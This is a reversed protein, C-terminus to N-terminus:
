KGNTDNSANAPQLNANNTTDSKANKVELKAELNKIKERLELYEERSVGSNQKRNEETEIIRKFVTYTKRGNIDTFIEFELNEDQHIYVIKSNLPANRTLAEELSTVLLKNSQIQPQPAQPQVQNVNNGNYYQNANPPNSGFISRMNPYDQLPQAMYGNQYNDWNQQNRNFM